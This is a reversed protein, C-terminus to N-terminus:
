RGAGLTRGRSRVTPNISAPHVGPQANITATFGGFWCVGQWMNCVNVDNYSVYIDGANPNSFEIVGTLIYM